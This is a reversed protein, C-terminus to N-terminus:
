RSWVRVAVVAVETVDPHSILASEIEAPEVRFGRIKLQHDVRGLVELNHDARWRGLDGTRYMRSGPVVSHRNPVFREATLEPRGLYGRAVGCGGIYTEGVEGAPVRNLDKDLVLVQAHRLPKGVPISAPPEQAALEEGADFLTSTITTETLGYANLM